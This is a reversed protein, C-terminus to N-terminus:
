WLVSLKQHHAHRKLLLSGIANTRQLLPMASNLKCRMTHYHPRPALMSLFSEVSDVQPAKFLSFIENCTACTRVKLAGVLKMGTWIVIASRQRGFAKQLEVLSLRWHLFGHVLFLCYLRHVCFVVFLAVENHSGRCDSRM